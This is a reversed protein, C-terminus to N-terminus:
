AARSKALKLAIGSEDVRYGLLDVAREQLISDLRGIELKTPTQAVDLLGRDALPFGANRHAIKIELEDNM